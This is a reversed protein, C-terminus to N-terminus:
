LVMPGVPFIWVLSVIAMLLVRSVMGVELLVSENLGISLKDVMPCKPFIIEFEFRGRVTIIQSCNAIHLKMICAIVMVMMMIMIMM